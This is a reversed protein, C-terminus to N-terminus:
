FVLCNATCNSCKAKRELSVTDLLVSGGLDLVENQLRSVIHRLETNEVSRLRLEAENAQLKLQFDGLKNELDQLQALVFSSASSENHPETPEPACEFTKRPSFEKFAEIADRTEDIETAFQPGRDYCKTEEDEETAKASKCSRKCLQAAILKNLYSKRSM